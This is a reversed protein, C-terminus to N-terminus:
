NFKFNHTYNSPLTDPPLMKLVDGRFKWNLLDQSSYCGVFRYNIDLNKSRQEGYWYYISKIKIKGGGHAQIHNSDEDTWIEGPRFVKL